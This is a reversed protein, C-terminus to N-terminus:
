PKKRGFLQKLRSSSATASSGNSAAHAAGTLKSALQHYALALKANPDFELVSVGRTLAGSAVRYDNPLRFYVDSKLVKEADAVTLVEGSQFRNVVVCTKDNPYGLRRFVTLARQASRLSAVSLEIVLLIRDAADLAALSRDSLQHEVDLVTSMFNARLHGIITSVTAATVQEHAEPREPAPLVWVGADSPTLLSNLLDADVRDLKDVLDGLDYSPNLNLLVRTDGGPIVLDAIAHRAKEQIKAFAFALNIAITSVGVGGKASYVAVVQGNVAHTLTRRMLRDIAAALDKPDPPSVLFEQIGARMARIMIDPDAKSATGIVAVSRERRMERDLATLQLDSAGELPILALDIPHQRLMDVAHALTEARLITSFGFRGLVEGALEDPGASQGVLLVQRSM